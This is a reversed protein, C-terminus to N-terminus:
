AKGKKGLLVEIRDRLKELTLVGRNIREVDEHALVLPRVPHMVGNRIYPLRGVAKEFKSRSEYGLQRAAREDRSFVKLLQALTVAAVPGVDMGKRRSLEWYGLIRAQQEEDLYRLWAWPDPLLAELWKAMGAEVDALLHYIASRVAHRNLDSITFLGWIIEGPGYETADSESIVIVARQAAMKELLDFITVFSSVRFNREEDRIRGDDHRLPKGAELLSRLYGTEALGYYCRSSPDYVPTQDYGRETLTSLVLPDVPGPTVTVCRDLPICLRELDIVDEMRLRRHETPAGETMGDCQGM